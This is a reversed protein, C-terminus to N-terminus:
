WCEVCNGNRCLLGADGKITTDTITMHSLLSKILTHAVKTTQAHSQKVRELEEQQDAKQHQLQLELDAAKQTLRRHAELLHDHQKMLNKYGHSMENMLHQNKAPGALCPERYRPQGHRSELTRLKQSLLLVALLMLM